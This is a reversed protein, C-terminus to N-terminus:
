LENISLSKHSLFFSYFPWKPSANLPHDAIISGHSLSNYTSDSFFEGKVTARPSHNVEDVLLIRGQTGRLDADDDHDIFITALMLQGLSPDVLRQWEVIMVM